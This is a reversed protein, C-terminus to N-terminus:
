HLQRNGVQRRDPLELPCLADGREVPHDAAALGRDLARLRGSRWARYVLPGDVYSFDSAVVDSGSLLRRAREILRPDTGAPAEDIATRVVGRQIRRL